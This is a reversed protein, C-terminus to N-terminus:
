CYHKLRVVYVRWCCGENALTGVSDFDRNTAVAATTCLVIRPPCSCLQQECFCLPHPVHYLKRTEEMDRQSTIGWLSVLNSYFMTLMSVLLTHRLRPACSSICIATLRNSRFGSRDDACLLRMARTTQKLHLTRDLPVRSLPLCYKAITIKRQQPVRVSLSCYLPSHPSTCRRSRKRPTNDAAAEKKAKLIFM